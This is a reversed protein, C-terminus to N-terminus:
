KGRPGLSNGKWTAEAHRRVGEGPKKGRMAQMSSRAQSVASGGEGYGTNMSDRGEGVVNPEGQNRRQIKTEQPRHIVGTRKKMPPNSREFARKRWRSGRARCKEEKRSLGEGQKRVGIILRCKRKEDL